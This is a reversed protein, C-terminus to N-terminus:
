QLFKKMIAEYTGDKKIEALAARCREVLIDDTGLSFALYLGASLDKLYLVPEYDELRGGALRLIYALGLRDIPFLDIRDSEIKRINQMDMTVLDLNRSPEFGNKELFQARVDDRVAGTRYKKAEDLSAVAIDKRRKLKYLYIDYPAVVDIWKFLRERKQSRGISYILVNPSELAMNYTRAWPYSALTYQLRARKLMEEVIETSCGKIAGNETFNYPPYEETVVAITPYQSQAQGAPPSACFCWWLGFLLFLTRAIGNGM